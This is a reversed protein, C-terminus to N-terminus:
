FSKQSKSKKLTFILGSLILLSCVFMRTTIVEDFYFYAFSGAVIPQLYVFVAVNGAPLRKLTWNNLLYTLLTAGFISFLASYLLEDSYIVEGLTGLKPLSLLLLLLGSIFFMWTTSWMNDYLQFFSKGFSLYIAFCFTGLLVLMDGMFTSGSIEFNTLDRIFIVGFFALMLGIVKNSTLEEQKRIIVILLTLIPICTTLIATNISSTHKLGILFLGQGLGLGFVSLLIASKLFKKNLPPHKRKFILSLILMGFGAVLFRIASWLLPDM